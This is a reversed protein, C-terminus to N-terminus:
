VEWMFNDPASNYFTFTKGKPRFGTKTRGSATIHRFIKNNNDFYYDVHEKADVKLKFQKAHDDFYFNRPTRGTKNKGTANKDKWAGAVPDYYYQDDTAMKQRKPYFRGQEDHFYYHDPMKPPLGTGDHVNVMLIPDFHGSGKMVFMETDLDFYFDDRTINEIDEPGKKWIHLREDYVYDEKPNKLYFDRISPDLYYDHPFRHLAPRHPAGTLRYFGTEEDFTYSEEPKKKFFLGEEFDFYFDEPKTDKDNQQIDWADNVKQGIIKQRAVEANKLMEMRISRPLWLKKYTDWYFNEPYLGSRPTAVKKWIKSYKGRLYRANSAESLDKLKFQGEVEDFYFRNIDDSRLTTLLTVDDAKRWVGDDPFYKFLDGQRPPKPLFKGKKDSWYYDDPSFGTLGRWPGESKRTYRKGNEDHEVNSFESEEADDTSLREVWKGFEEDFYFNHPKRRGKTKKHKYSRGSTSHDTESSAEIDTQFDINGRERLERGEKSIVHVRFVGNKHDYVIEDHGKYDDRAVFEGVIDDFYYDYPTQQNESKYKGRKRKHRWVHNTMDYYYEAEFGLRRRYFEGEDDDYYWMDATRRKFEALDEVDEIDFHTTDAEQQVEPELAEEIEGLAVHAASGAESEESSVDQEYYLAIREDTNAVYETPDREFNVDVLRPLDSQM